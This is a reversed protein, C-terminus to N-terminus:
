LLSPTDLCLRAGRSCLVNGSRALVLTGTHMRAPSPEPAPAPPLASCLGLDASASRPPAQPRLWLRPPAPPLPRPRIWPRSPAPAPNPVRGYVPLPSGCAPAVDPSLSRLPFPYQPGPCHPSQTVKQLTGPLPAAGPFRTPRLWLGLLGPWLQTCRTDVQRPAGSPEQVTLSPTRSILFGGPYGPGGCKSNWMGPFNKRGRVFNSGGM